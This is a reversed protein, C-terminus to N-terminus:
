LLLKVSPLTRLVSDRERECVCLCVCVSGDTRQPVCLVVQSGFTGNAWQRTKFTDGTISRHVLFLHRGM